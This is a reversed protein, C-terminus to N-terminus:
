LARYRVIATTNMCMLFESYGSDMVIFNNAALKGSIDEDTDYAYFQGLNEINSLDPATQYAAVSPTYDRLPEQTSLDNLYIRQQGAAQDQLKVTGDSGTGDTKGQTADEQSSPDEQESDKNQDYYEKGTEVTQKALQGFASCGGLTSIVLVGSLVLVLLQRNKMAM